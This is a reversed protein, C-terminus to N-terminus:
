YRLNQGLIKSVVLVQKSLTSILWYALYGPWLDSLEFTITRRVVRLCVFSVSKEEQVVLTMTLIAATRSHIFLRVFPDWDFVEIVIPAVHAAVDEPKGYIDITDFILTQDWTPNLTKDIRETAQSYNLFAVRAFPDSSIVRCSIIVDVHAWFHSLAQCWSRVFYPFNILTKRWVRCLIPWKPSTRREKWGVEQSLVTFNFWVCRFCIHM